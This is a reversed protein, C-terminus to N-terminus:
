KVEPVTTLDTNLFASLSMFAEGNVVLMNPIHGSTTLADYVEKTKKKGVLSSKYITTFVPYFERNLSDHKSTSVPLVIEQADVGSDELQKSRILDRNYAILNKNIFFLDQKSLDEHQCKTISDVKIKFVQNPAGNVDNTPNTEYYFYKLNEM